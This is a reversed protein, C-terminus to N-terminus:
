GEARLSCWAPGRGLAAKVKQAPVRAEGEQRVEKAAGQAVPQRVQAQRQLLKRKAGKKVRRCKNAPKTTPDGTSGSSTNSGSGGAPTGSGVIATTTLGEDSEIQAVQQVVTTHLPAGSDGQCTDVGGSLYGACVMSSAQFTPGYVSGSGWTADSIIEM